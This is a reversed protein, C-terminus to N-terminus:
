HAGGVQSFQDPTRLDAHEHRIDLLLPLQYELLMVSVSWGKVLSSIQRNGLLSRAHM